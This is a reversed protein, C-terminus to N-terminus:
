HGHLMRPTRRVPQPSKSFNDAVGALRIRIYDVLQAGYEITSNQAGITIDGARACCSLCTSKLRQLWWCGRGPEGQGPQVRCCCIFTASALMDVPTHHECRQM